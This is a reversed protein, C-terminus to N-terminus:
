DAFCRKSCDVDVQLLFDNQNASGSLLHKVRRAVRYGDRDGFRGGSKGVVGMVLCGLGMALDGVICDRRVRGRKAREARAKEVVM